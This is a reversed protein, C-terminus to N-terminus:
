GEPPCAVGWLAGGTMDSYTYPKNVGDYVEVDMSDPDLRFVQSSGFAVGWVFGDTDVSVGKTILAGPLPIKGGIELTERDVWAVGGSDNDMSEVYGVWLRGEGDAALGSQGALLMNDAFGWTEDSPDFRVLSSAGMSGYNASLWPRGEPDVTIGYSAQPVNWTEVTLTQRDIRALVSEMGIGPQFTSIWFNGDKDVAGGYAGYFDCPLGGDVAEEIVGTDGDILYATVTEDVDYYCASTWVKEGEWECTLPNLTGAVWAVPRNATNPPLEAHWAVCDDQQWGLVNAAGNSTQLGPQGNASEDCLDPHSWIKTVGGGEKRNAIAVALGSLAVSTRSPSAEVSAHTRYRGEEVLTATDIKSVTGEDSNAVWIYSFSVTPGCTCDGPVDPALV